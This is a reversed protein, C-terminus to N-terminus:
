YRVCLNTNFFHLVCMTTYVENYQKLIIDLLIHSTHLVSVRHTYCYFVQRNKPKVIGNKATMRCSHPDAKIMNINISYQFSCIVRFQVYNSLFMFCHMCLVNLESRHSNRLKFNVGVSIQSTVHFGLIAHSLCM